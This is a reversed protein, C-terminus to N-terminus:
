YSAPKLPVGNWEVRPKQSLTDLACTKVWDFALALVVIINFLMFTNM